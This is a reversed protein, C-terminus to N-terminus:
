TVPQQAKSDTKIISIPAIGDIAIMLKNAEFDNLKFKVFSLLHTADYCM